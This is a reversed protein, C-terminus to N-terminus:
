MVDITTEAATTDATFSTDFNTGSCFSGANGGGVGDGTGHCATLVGQQTKSAACGVAMACMVDMQGDVCGVPATFAEYVRRDWTIDTTGGPAVEVGVGPGCDSCGQQVGNKYFSECTFECSSVAGPGISLNGEPTSLVIPLTAGCGYDLHLPSTGANHVHFTFTSGPSPVSCDAGGAGDGGMGAGGTGPHGSSSGSSSSSAVSAICLAGAPCGVTKVTDGCGGLQVAVVALTVVVISSAFTTKHM